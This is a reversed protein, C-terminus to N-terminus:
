GEALFDILVRALEAPREAPVWHGCDAIVAASPRDSLLKAQEGPYGALSRDGGVGLVPIALKGRVMAAVQGASAPMARYHGFGAALRGPRALAAVADDLEAAPVSGPRAAFTEFFWSVYARERGAILTEPLGPVMHFGMHWYPAGSPSAQPMPMAGAGIALGEVMALRTVEGPHGAAWAFAPWVGIDHGVVAVREHGLQRCVERVDAAVTAADYGGGPVASDGFGRLDPVIVTYREALAPMVAAWERWTQPWGHLLVVADGRGGVVYHIRVGNAEAFRSEFGAPVAGDGGAAREGDRMM